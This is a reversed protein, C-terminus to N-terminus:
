DDGNAAASARAGTDREADREDNVIPVGDLRAVGVDEVGEATIGLHGGTAWCTACARLLM